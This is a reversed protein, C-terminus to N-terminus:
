AVIGNFIDHMNVIEVGRHKMQEPNVVFFQDVAELSSVEAEGINVSVDDSFNQSLLLNSRNPRISPATEEKGIEEDVRLLLHNADEHALQMGGTTQIESLSNADEAVM